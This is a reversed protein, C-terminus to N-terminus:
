DRVVMVSCTAHRTVRAANPGLLYDQMKPRHTGMIILEAKIEQSVRLIEEYVTGVGIIHQVQIDSPVHDKVFKHLAKKVKEVTKKEYDSPFYSSVISMGFDPVVTMIHLNADFAKAYETAIEMPKKWSGGDEIDVALLIDKFM